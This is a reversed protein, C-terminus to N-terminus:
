KIRKKGGCVPGIGSKISNPTTLKKGCSGCKGHHYVKVMPYKDQNNLFTDLLWEFVKIKQDGINLIGDKKVKFKKDSFCTGINVYNHGSLTTVFWIEEDKHKKIKITVHNKTDENVVTFLANGAFIFDRLYQGSLIHEPVFNFNFKKTSTPIKVLEM